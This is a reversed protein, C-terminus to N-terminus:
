ASGALVLSESANTLVAHLEGLLTEPSLPKELAARAGLQRARKVGRADAPLALVIVQTHMLRPIYRMVELVAIGTMEPMELDLLVLDIRTSMMLGLADAGSRARFLKYGRGALAAEVLDLNEDHDDVALVRPASM